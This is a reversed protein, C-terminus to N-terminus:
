QYYEKGRFDHPHYNSKKHTKAHELDYKLLEEITQYRYRHMNLALGCAKEFREDGFKENLRKLGFCARIAQQPFIRLEFFKNVYQYVAEGKSKAWKLFFEVSADRQEQLYHRHQPPMHDEGTSFRGSTDDRPHLAIREALYFIDVTNQTICVDVTKGVFRHPVSYFHKHISIHYDIHVKAKKWEQLEFRYPPLPKLAPKDLSEFQQLRSVQIKQMPRQNLLAVREKIAANIEELSTFTMHRLPAIIEREVCQVSVEVKSKDKPTRVRAPIVAIQYHEAMLAYTPNLDPDYRHSKHVGSKLNDVVLTEPVGGFCEFMRVHSSIWDPLSQTDTAECYIFNSAGLCGVFIEASHIEGTKPHIWEMKLGSYDVFCKEGAKHSLRMTPELTRAYAQYKVCFRTYGLGEPSEEKYEKWLLLLTVGKKKLEQYM